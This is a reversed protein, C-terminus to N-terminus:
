YNAKGFAMKKGTPKKMMEKDPMKGAKGMKSTGSPKTKANTFGGSSKRM